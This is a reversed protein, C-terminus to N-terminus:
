CSVVCSLAASIITARKASLLVLLSNLIRENDMLNLSTNKNDCRAEFIYSVDDLKDEDGYLLLELDAYFAEQDSLSSKVDM